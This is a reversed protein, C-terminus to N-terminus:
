GNVVKADATSSDAYLSKLEDNFHAAIAHRRPRGNDTFLGHQSSMLAPLQRWHKIQAYDPLRSNAAQVMKELDAPGLDPDRVTILAVCYPKADGFVVAEAIAPFALLESEVWEPSINRGFSSILLNKRRGQVNLFGNEDFRGLDGTRIEVPYWSDPENVYGLMTNGRVVVEGADIEVQLNPLPLGCTGAKQAAFTNLSVVSCCESLGYGEYVPLGLGHAKGLLEPAVKSGGVAIFQLSEPASWGRAAATVLVQLLEPVLILTNPRARSITELLRSPDALGSGSFGMAQQGPVILEGAALIPAYAGAINELLTSLPLLCLHRPRELGVCDRLTHAQQLQQTHSLCVGKPTGTSGSTFTIKGTAAPLSPLDNATKLRYLQLGTGAVAQPAVSDDICSLQALAENDTLLYDAASVEIAFRMQESSFFVPLPLLCRDTFQCSFDTVLWDVGNDACLALRRGDLSDMQECFQQCREIIEAVRYSDQLDSLLIQDADFNRVLHNIINM